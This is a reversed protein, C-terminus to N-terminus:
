VNRCSCRFQYKRQPTHSDFPNLPITKRGRRDLATVILAKIQGAEAAAILAALGAREKEDATGSIGEDVFAAAVLWGRVTAM